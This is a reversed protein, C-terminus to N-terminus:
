HRSSKDSAKHKDCQLASFFLAGLLYALVPVVIMIELLQIPSLM